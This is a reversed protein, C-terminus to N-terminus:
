DELLIREAERLSRVVCTAQSCSRGLPDLLISDIGAAAAAPIDATRSDGLFVAEAKSTCGLADLAIEVLRPDPKSVGKESSIIIADLEGTFPARHLRNRQIVSDGNSVLAIKMTGHLHQLFEAADPLLDAHTGLYHCYRLAVRAAGASSAPAIEDLLRAFRAVKIDAHTLEGRELHKWLGDNIASYRARIADSVTLGTEELAETLAKAEAAQFDMLTNDNDVLLYRYKVANNRAFRRSPFSATPM